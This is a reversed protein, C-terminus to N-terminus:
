RKKDTAVTEYLMILANPLNLKHQITDAIEQQFQQSSILIPLDLKQLEDPTYIPVGSLEQGVYRSNSDVFAKINVEALRTSALLGQTHTGVGWVAIPRQSDALENIVSQINQLKAEALGIYCELEPKTQIDFIIPAAPAPGLEFMAKIEYVTLGPVQEIEIQRLGKTVFGYKRWLNQLSIPGFYNIHEVSFEQFPADNLSSCRTMDPVEVYVHGEPKLLEKIREITGALDLIHEMVSGVIVLDFLGVDDPIRSIPAVRVDIGYLQKATSACAPSPDIGMVREFGNKRLEALLGGNACGIDVIRANRDPLWGSIVSVALPLRRTDYESSGGSRSGHEYKSQSEYYNDLETQSPLDDAFCFGCNACCVVDYGDLLAGSLKTFKRRYLQQRNEGGCIPCARAVKVKADTIFSEQCSPDVVDTM